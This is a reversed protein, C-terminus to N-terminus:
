YDYVHELAGGADRVAELTTTLDAVQTDFAVRERSADTSLPQRFLVRAEPPSWGIPALATVLIPGSNGAIELFRVDHAALETAVGAFAQYRPGTLLVAGDDFRQVVELGLAATDVDDPLRDVVFATLLIEEGYAADSGARLLQAYGAKALYETTLAYRRELARVPARWTFPTDLWLGRLAEVYDFDYWPAQDLFAAYDHAVRAGYADESTRVGMATAESLRGVTSEYVSRIGYEVTSSGCIVWIMAHYGWNTPTEDPIARAADAYGTWMEVVHGLFPFDGPGRTEVWEAYERPSYVLFWEPFTLYTNDSARAWREPTRRLPAEQATGRVAVAVVLAGLAVAAVALLPRM